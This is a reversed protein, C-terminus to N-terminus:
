FIFNIQFVIGDAQVLEIHVAIQHNNLQALQDDVNKEQEKVKM